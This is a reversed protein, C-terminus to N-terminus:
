CRNDAEGESGAWNGKCCRGEQGRSSIHVRACGMPAGEAEARCTAESSVVGSRPCPQFFPSQNFNFNVGDFGSGFM